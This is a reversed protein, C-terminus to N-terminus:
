QKPHVTLGRLIGESHGRMLLKSKNGSIEVLDSGRTGFIIVTGALNETITSIRM